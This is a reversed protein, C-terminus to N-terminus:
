KVSMSFGNCSHFMVNMSHGRAPVWFGIAPCSNISYAVRTQQAGLEIELNFRWFTVGREAHLRVGTVFQGKKQTRGERRGAKPNGSSTSM